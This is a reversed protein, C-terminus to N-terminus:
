TVLIFTLQIAGYLLIIPNSDTSSPAEINELQEIELDM